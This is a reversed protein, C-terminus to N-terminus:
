EGGEWPYEAQFQKLGDLDNEEKLVQVYLDRFGRHLIAPEGAPFRGGVITSTYVLSVEPDKSIAPEGEPFRGHVVNAAYFYALWPKQSCARKLYPSEKSGTFNRFVEEGFEGTGAKELIRDMLGSEILAERTGEDPKTPRNKIDKLEVRTPGSTSSGAFFQAIKQGDRYIVYLPSQVVYNGAFPEERTCWQTGMGLRCAAESGTVEIIKYQGGDYFLSSGGPLQEPLTNVRGAEEFIEYDNKIYDVDTGTFDLLNKPNIFRETVESHEKVLRRFVDEKNHTFYWVALNRFHVIGEAIDGTWRNLQTLFWQTVLGEKGPLATAFAAEIQKVDAFSLLKGDDKIYPYQKLFREITDDPLAALRIHTYDRSLIM